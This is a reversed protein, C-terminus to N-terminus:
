SAEKKTLLLVISGLFAPFAVNISWLILLAFILQLDIHYSTLLLLAVAERTGLNGMFPSPIFTTILYLLGVFIIYDSYHIEGHFIYLLIFLQSAFILYRLLSLFLVKLTVEKKIDDMFSIQENYKKIFKIKGTWKNLVHVNFFLILLLGLATLTGVLGLLIYLGKGSLIPPAIVMLLILSFAGYLLTTILQALNGIMTASLISAMKHKKFYLGRGAFTGLRDPTLIGVANGAYVSKICDMLGVKTFVTLITKFKAAELIWNVFQLIFVFLLLLISTSDALYKLNELAEDNWSFKSLRSYIFSVAGVFVIIQLL